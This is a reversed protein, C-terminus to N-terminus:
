DELESELARRRNIADHITLTIAAFGVLFGMIFFVIGIALDGMWAVNELGVIQVEAVIRMGCTLIGVIAGCFLAFLTVFDWPVQDVEACRKHSSFDGGRPQMTLSVVGAVLITLVLLLHVPILKEGLATFIPQDTTSSVQELMIAYYLSLVSGILLITGGVKMSKNEEAELREDKPGMIQNYRKILNM